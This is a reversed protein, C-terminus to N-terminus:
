KLKNCYNSEYNNSSNWIGLKNQYANYQVICLNDLYKYDNYIYNVEAYGKSLLLESLNNNDVFIWALLRGYKDYEDSKIDYELEIKTASKLINCTYDSAEKGYDEVIGNPHVSEPTDIGLFRVKEKKDNVRFWATDGDICDILQIEIRDNYYSNFTLIIILVLILIGIIFKFIKKM